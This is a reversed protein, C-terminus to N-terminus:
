PDMEDLIPLGALKMLWLANRTTSVGSRLTYDFRVVGEEYWEQFHANWVGSCTKELAGLELDHTSILGLIPRDASDQRVLWRMLAEAGAHRDVSNTGKFLEDLLFFVREGAEVAKVLLKVRLLEAYFSSVGQEVDDRTRMCTYLHGPRFVFRTARVPGGAMALVLNVGVTRLLTSKGSMNSGTILAIRDSAEFQVTNLVCDDNLLPHGASEALLRPPADMEKLTPMTWDPHAHALGALSSLAELEANTEVWDGVHKGSQARWREIAFLFHWDLLLLIDAVIYLQHRRNGLADVIRALRAAQESATRAHDDRLREQMRRLLTSQVSLAEFRGLLQQHVRIDSAAKEVSTLCGSVAKWRWLLLLMEVVLCLVLPAYGFGPSVTRLLSPLVAFLLTVAPLVFAVLRMRRLQHTSLGPTQKNGWTSLAEAECFAGEYTLAEAQLEQRWDLLPALELVANQRELISEPQQEGSLFWHALRKKGAPTVATNCRQFLSGPGFIDLDAVYPHTEDMFEQGNDPLQQWKDTVRKWAVTNVELMARAHARQRFAKEHLVVLVIFVGLLTLGSVWAAMPLALLGLAIVAGVGSLFVFLRWNSLRNIRRDWQASWDTWQAMRGRYQAAQQSEDTKVEDTKVKDANAM